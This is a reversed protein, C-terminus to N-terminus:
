TKEKKFQEFLCFFASFRIVIKQVWSSLLLTGIIRYTFFHLFDNKIKLVIYRM